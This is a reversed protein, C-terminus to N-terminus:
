HSDQMGDRGKCRVGGGEGGFCFCCRPADVPSAYIRQVQCQGSRGALTDSDEDGPLWMEERTDDSIGPNRALLVLYMSRRRATKPCANGM